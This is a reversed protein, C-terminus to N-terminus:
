AKQSNGDQHVSTAQNRPALCRGVLSIHQTVTAGVAESTSNWVQNPLKNERAGYALRSLNTALQGCPRIVFLNRPRNAFRNQGNVLDGTVRVGALSRRHGPM